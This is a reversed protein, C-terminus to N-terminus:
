IYTYINKWLLHNWSSVLNMRVNDPDSSTKSILLLLLFPLIFFFIFFFHKAGIFLARSRSTIERCSPEQPLLDGYAVQFHPKSTLDEIRYGSKMRDLRLGVVLSRRLTAAATPLLPTKM